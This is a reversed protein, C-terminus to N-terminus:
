SRRPLRRFRPQQVMLIPGGALGAAVPGALADPYNQGTHGYAVPLAPSRLNRVSVAAATAYRDPAPSASFGAPLTPFCAM